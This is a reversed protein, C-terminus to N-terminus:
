DEDDDDEDTSEIIRRAKSAAARKARPQVAQQEDAPERSAVKNVRKSTSPEDEGSSMDVDDHEEEDDSWKAKKKAKGRSAPKARSPTKSAPTPVGKKVSKPPPAKRVLKAEDDSGDEVEDVEDEEMDADLDFTKQGGRAVRSPRQTPKAKAGTSQPDRVALQEMSSEMEVEGDDATPGLAGQPENEQPEEEEDDEDSDRRRSGRTKKKSDASQDPVGRVKLGALASGAKKGGRRGGKKVATMAKNETAQVEEGKAKFEKLKNEFEDM